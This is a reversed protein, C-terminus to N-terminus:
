LNPHVHWKGSNKGDRYDDLVKNVGNATLGEEVVKFDLPKIKGSEMWVPLEKWFDRGFDGISHSSGYTQNIRYGANKDGIKATDVRGNLLTVVKGNRTSSLLSVALTFETNITDLVYVLDDGTIGQVRSKIEENSAHRDIIDTAGYSRLESANSAAAVVIIKGIGALSAFQVGLKGCNSGGGIIVLSQAAYDFTMAEENSSFPPPIGLGTSHFIAVFPAIGNVPLTAAQDDSFASPVHATVDADLLAYQQLGSTDHSLRSQAFVHDGIKFGSVNPGISAVTGAIDNVIMAPVNTGIFLGYDRVKQDHPNVPCPDAEGIRCSQPTIRSNPKSKSGSSTIKVLIQSEKPTPIVRTTMTLPKGIESIVLANQTSM